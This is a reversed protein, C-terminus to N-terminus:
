IRKGTYTKAYCIQGRNRVHSIHLFTPYVVMQDYPLNLKLVLKALAIPDDCSIDAAQGKMHQSNPEGGALANLQPCRYGSNIKMPKKYADRLPQLVDLVLAQINDRVNADVISNMIGNNKALDSAEFESYSFNNSISGM